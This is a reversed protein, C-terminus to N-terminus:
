LKKALVSLAYCKDLPRKLTLEMLYNLLGAPILKFKNVYELLKYFGKELYGKQKIVSPLVSVLQFGNGSLLEKIAELTFYKRYQNEGISISAIKLYGGAKIGEHFKKVALDREEDTLYYLTEECMILDYQKDPAYDNLDLQFYNINERSNRRRAIALANESIDFADVECNYHSAVDKTIYGEGCGADLVTKKSADSFVVELHKLLIARRIKDRVTNNYGWPDEKSYWKELDAKSKM